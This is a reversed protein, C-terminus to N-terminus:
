YEGVSFTDPSSRLKAPQPNDKRGATTSDRTKKTTQSPGAEKQKGKDLAQPPLDTPHSIPTPIPTTRDDLRFASRVSAPMPLVHVWSSRARQLSLQGEETLQEKHHPINTYMYRLRQDNSEIRTLDDYLDPLTSIPSLVLDHDAPQQYEVIYKNWAKVGLEVRLRLAKWAANLQGLSSTGSLIPLLTDGPDVRFYNKRETILNAARQLFIQLETISDQVRVLDNPALQYRPRGDKREPGRDFIMEPGLEDVDIILQIKTETSLGQSEIDDSSFERLLGAM